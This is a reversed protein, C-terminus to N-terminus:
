TKVKRICIDLAKPLRTDVTPICEWTSDIFKAQEGHKNGDDEKVIEPFFFDFAVAVTCIQFILVTGQM